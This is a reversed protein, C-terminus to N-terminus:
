PTFYQQFPASISKWANITLARGRFQTLLWLEGCILNFSEAIASFLTLWPMAIIALQMHALKKTHYQSIFLLGLVTSAGRLWAQCSGTARTWHWCCCKCWQCVVLSTSTFPLLMSPLYWTSQQMPTSTANSSFWQSESAHIQVRYSVSESDSRGATLWTALSLATLPRWTGCLLYTDMVYSLIPYCYWINLYQVINHGVDLIIDSDINWSMIPLMM